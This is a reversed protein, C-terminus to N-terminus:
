DEILELKFQMKDKVLCNKTRSEHEAKSKYGLSMIFFIKNKVAFSKDILILANNSWVELLSLQIGYLNTNLKLLYVQYLLTLSGSRNFLNFHRQWSVVNQQLTRTLSSWQSLFLSWFLSQRFPGVKSYISFIQSLNRKVSPSDVNCLLFDFRGWTIM